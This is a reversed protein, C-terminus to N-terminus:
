DLENRYLSGPAISCVKCNWPWRDGNEISDRQYYAGEPLGAILCRGPVMTEQLTWARRLWHRQGDWGEPRFPLGLGSMFIVTPGGGYLSTEDLDSYVAGITPVDIKWEQIRCQERKVIIEENIPVVWSKALAPQAQQRLCLVDLWAYRVGLRIMERRVDEVLVGKPLPIPWLQQNAGTLDFAMDEDAVWAHSVPRLGPISRLQGVAPFSGRGCLWSIPIVTNACIDWMRRPYLKRIWGSIVSTGRSDTMIEIEGPVSPLGDLVEDHDKICIEFSMRFKLNSIAAVAASRSDGYQALYENLSVAIARLSDRTIALFATFWAHVAGFVHNEAIFYDFWKTCEGNVWHSFTEPDLRLAEQPAKEWSHQQWSLDYPDRTGDPAWAPVWMDQYDGGDVIGPIGCRGWYKELQGRLGTISMGGVHLNCEESTLVVAPWKWHMIWDGGRDDKSNRVRLFTATDINAINNFWRGRLPSSSDAGSSSDPYGSDDNCLVLRAGTPSTLPSQSLRGIALPTASAPISPKM